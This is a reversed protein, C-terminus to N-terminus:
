SLMSSAERTVKPLMSISNAVQHSSDLHVPEPAQFGPLSSLASLYEQRKSIFRLRIQSSTRVARADFEFAYDGPPAQKPPEIVLIYGGNASGMRPITEDISWTVGAVASNSQDFRRGDPTIFVTHIKDTNVLLVFRDSTEPRSSLTFPVRTNSSGPAIEQQRIQDQALLSVASLFIALSIRM